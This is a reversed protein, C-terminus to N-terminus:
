QGGGALGNVLALANSTYQKVRLLRWTMDAKARSGPAVEEFGDSCTEENTLAASMWTQANSVRWAAASSSGAAEEVLGRLEASTRRALDSADGLADSCDRLAGAEPCAAVPANTTTTSCHRRLSSVRASLKALRAVTLNASVRALQVPNQQVAGSYAALSSYCLGPFRTAGCRARIFQDTSNVGDPVPPSSVLAPEVDAALLLVVACTFFFFFFSLLSVNRAM